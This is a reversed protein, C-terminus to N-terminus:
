EPVRAGESTDEHRALCQNASALMGALVSFVLSPTVVFLLRETRQM